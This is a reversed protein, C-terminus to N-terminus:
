QSGDPAMIFLDIRNGEIVVINEGATRIILGYFEPVPLVTTHQSGKFTMGSPNKGDSEVGTISKGTTRGIFGNFEPAFIGPIQQCGQITM